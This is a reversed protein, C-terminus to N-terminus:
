CNLEKWGLNSLSLLWTGTDCITIEPELSKTTEWGQNEFYGIAGRPDEM